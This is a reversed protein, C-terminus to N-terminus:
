KKLKVFMLMTHEKENFDKFFENLQDRHREDHYVDSRMQRQRSVPKKNVLEPIIRGEQYLTKPLTKHRDGQQDSANVM